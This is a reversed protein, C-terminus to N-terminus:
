SKGKTEECLIRLADAVGSFHGDWWASDFVRKASLLSLTKEDQMREIARKVGSAKRSRPRRPPKPNKPPRTM